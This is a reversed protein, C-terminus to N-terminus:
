NLRPDLQRTSESQLSDDTLKGHAASEQVDGKSSHRTIDGNIMRMARRLLDENRGGKVMDEIDGPHDLVQSFFSKIEDSNVFHHKLLEAGLILLELGMNVAIRCTLNEEFEVLLLGPILRAVHRGIQLYTKRKERKSEM